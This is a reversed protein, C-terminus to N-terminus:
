NGEIRIERAVGADAVVPTVTIRSVRDPILLSQAHAHAQMLAAGAAFALWALAPVSKFLSRIANTM